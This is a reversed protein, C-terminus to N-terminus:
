IHKGDARVVPRCNGEGLKWIRPDAFGWNVGHWGSRASIQLVTKLITELLLELYEVRKAMAGVSDFPDSIRILDQSSASGVTVKM